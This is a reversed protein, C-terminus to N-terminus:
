NQSWVAKETYPTLNTKNWLFATFSMPLQPINAAISLFGAVDEDLPQLLVRETKNKNDYRYFFMPTEVTKTTYILYYLNNELLCLQSIVAGTYLSKSKFEAIGSIGKEDDKIEIPASFCGDTGRAATFPILMNFFHDSEYRTDTCNYTKGSFSRRDSGHIPSSLSDDSLMFYNHMAEGGPLAPDDNTMDMHYWKDDLNVYNWMHEGSESLCFDLEIGLEKAIIYLAQSYGQCVAKKDRLVGLAHHMTKWVSEDVVEDDERDDYVCDAVMKDHIVLMKELDTNYASALDTYEKVAEKMQRRATDAEAKSDVVYVPIISEVIDTGSLVKSVRYSTSLLIDPRKLAVDFYRDSFESKSIGYTGLGSITEPLKESELILEALYEEFSLDSFFSITCEADIEEAESDSVNLSVGRRLPHDRRIINEFTIDGAFASQAALVLLSLICIIRKLM